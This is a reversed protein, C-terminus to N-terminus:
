SSELINAILVETRYDCLPPSRHAVLAIRHQVAPAHLRFPLRRGHDAAGARAKAVLLPALVQVHAAQGLAAVEAVLMRAHDRRYLGLGLSSLYSYGLELVRPTLLFQRGRAAVYGLHQLTLLNRRVVARALGTRDAIESLSAQPLTHDFARLVQLGRALSQVFDPSEDFSPAKAM